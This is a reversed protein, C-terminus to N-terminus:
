NSELNSDSIPNGAGNEVARAKAVTVLAPRVVREHLTYGKQLVALVTNPEQAAEVAAMAQHRHPDFRQGAGPNVEAVGAREFASRMQRLTLEVGERLPGPATGAAALAAELSDMVPLLDEVIREAAYKRAQAIDAQARKRANEADALARLWAERQEDLKAQADALLEDLSREADPAADSSGDKETQPTPDSMPSFNAQCLGIYQSSAVSKLGL